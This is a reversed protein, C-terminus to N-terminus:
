YLPSLSRTEVFLMTFASFVLKFYWTVVISVWTRLKHYSPWCKERSTMTTLGFCRERYTWKHVCFWSVPKCYRVTGSLVLFWQKLANSECSRQHDFKRRCQFSMNYAKSNAPLWAVQCCKQEVKLNSFVQQCSTAKHWPISWSWGVDVIRKTSSAKKPAMYSMWKSRAITSRFLFKLQIFTLTLSM